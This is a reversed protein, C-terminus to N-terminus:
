SRSSMLIVFPFWQRRVRKICHRNLIEGRSTGVKAVYLKCLPDLEHIISAMQTGHPDSALWWPSERDGSETSFEVFSKGKEICSSLAGISRDVGNDIIAVRVPETIKFTRFTQLFTSLGTAVDATRSLM